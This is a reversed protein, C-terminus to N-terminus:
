KRHDIPIEVESNGEVHLIDGRATNVGSRSGPGLVSLSERQGTVHRTAGGDIYWDTTSFYKTHNTLNLKTINATLDLAPDAEGDESDSRPHDGFNDIINISQRVASRKSRAAKRKKLEAALEPCVRMWHEHSGCYHCEGSIWKSSKSSGEKRQTTPQKHGGKFLM